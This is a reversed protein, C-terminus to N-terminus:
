NRPKCFFMHPMYDLNRIEELKEFWPISPINLNYVDKARYRYRAIFDGAAELCKRGHIELMLLPRKKTFVVDGNKLAYEEASELDFKIFDPMPILHESVLEDVGFSRVTEMQLEQSKDMVRSLDAPGSAGGLNIVFKIDTHDPGVAKHHIHVNDWQNNQPLLKLRNFNLRSAEFAHITGSPGALKRFVSTYYGMYAGCDWIVWGPKIIKQLEIRSFIWDDYSGIWYSSEHRLDLYLVSGRAPGRLVRLQSFGDKDKLLNWLVNKALAKLRSNLM